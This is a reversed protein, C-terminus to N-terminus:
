AIKQAVFFVCNYQYKMMSRNNHIYTSPVAREEKLFEFKFSLIIKRVDEYSFEVSKENAMDAFHYLLPGHNIWLGGPKLIHYITEVYSIINAATDIFYVSAVCDWADTQNYIELFDGATMSFEADVPIETPNVDPFSVPRCQDDNSLNNLFQLIWPYITNGNITHCKNLIFNSAFLMFLSIENGQCRFGLKAIEFALRGLGAGPVLVSVDQNDRNDSKFRSILEDIVPGYCGNREEQGDESWDRVIQQVTTRVKEMEFDTAHYVPKDNELSHEKNQFMQDTDAIISTCIEYNADMCMRLNKIHNLYQPLINQYQQPLEKFNKEAKDVRKSAYNRYYRFANVIRLFHKREAEETDNEISNVTSM